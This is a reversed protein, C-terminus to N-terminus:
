VCSYIKNSAPLHVQFIHIELKQTCMYLIDIREESRLFKSLVMQDYMYM